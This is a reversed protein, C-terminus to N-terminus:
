IIMCEVNISKTFLNQVEAHACMCMCMCMLLVHCNHNNTAFILVTVCSSAIKCTGPLWVCGGPQRRKRLHCDGTCHTSKTYCKPRGRKLSIHKM